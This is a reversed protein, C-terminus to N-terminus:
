ARSGSTSEDPSGMPSLTAARRVGRDIDHRLNILETLTRERQETPMQQTAAQRALAALFEHDAAAQEYERRRQAPNMKGDLVSAAASGFAVVATLVKPAAVLALAGAGGASLATVGFLFDRRIANSRSRRRAHDAQGIASDALHTLQRSTSSVEDLDQAVV